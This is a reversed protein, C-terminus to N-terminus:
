VTKYINPNGFFTIKQEFHTNDFWFGTGVESNLNLFFVLFSPFERSLNCTQLAQLNLSYLFVFM